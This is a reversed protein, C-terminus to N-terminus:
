NCRRRWITRTLSITTIWLTCAAQCPTTTDRPLPPTSSIRFPHRAFRAGRAFVGSLAGDRGVLSNERTRALMITMPRPPRPTDLLAPAATSSDYVRFGFIRPTYARSRLSQSSGVPQGTGVHTPYTLLLLHPFTTGFYAGDIDTHASQPPPPTEADARLAPPTCARARGM